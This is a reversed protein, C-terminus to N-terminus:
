NPSHRARVSDILRRGDEGIVPSAVGNPEVAFGGGMGDSIVPSAGNPGVAFSGGMGDSIVPSAGYPGVAFSGGMGDSTAQAAAAFAPLMFLGAVVFTLHRNAALLLSKLM